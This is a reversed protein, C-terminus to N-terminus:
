LTNPQLICQPCRLHARFKKSPIAHTSKSKKIRKRKSKTDLLHFFNPLIFEREKKKKTNERTQYPQHEKLQSRIRHVGSTGWKVNCYLQYNQFPFLYILM